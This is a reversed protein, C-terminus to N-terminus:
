LFCRRQLILSVSNDVPSRVSRELLGLVRESNGFSDEVKDQCRHQILKAERYLLTSGKNIALGLGETAQRHGRVLRNACTRRRVAAACGARDRKANSNERAGNEPLKLHNVM